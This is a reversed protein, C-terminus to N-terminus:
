ARSSLKQLDALANRLRHGAPDSAPPPMQPAAARPEAQGFKRELGGELRAMLRSISEEERSPESPAELPWPTEDAAEEEAEEDEANLELAPAAEVQEDAEAADAFPPPEAEDFDPAADASVLWDPVPHPEPAAAEFAAEPAPPEEPEGLDRGAFLPRRVPADPHADHRRVRPLAFREDEDKDDEAVLPAASPRSRGDLVRLLLWVAAFTLLAGAGIAALRATDGLPPQAAAVFNALGSAGILEGFLSAPMAWTAFAVAGAAFAAMGLELPAGGRRAPAAGDLNAM